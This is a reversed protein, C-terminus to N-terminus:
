GQAANTQNIVGSLNLKIQWDEGSNGKVLKLIGTLQQGQLNITIEQENIALWEFLGQDFQKVFGRQNSIPGEYDLYMLRHDALASAKITKEIKSLLLRPSEKLKWTRLSKETELMLDWHVEPYDHELIVFRPLLM